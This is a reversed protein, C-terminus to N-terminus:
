KKFFLYGHVSGQAVHKDSNLNREMIYRNIPGCFCIRLPGVVTVSIHLRAAATAAGTAMLDNVNIIHLLLRRAALFVRHFM